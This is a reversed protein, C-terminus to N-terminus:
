ASSPMRSPTCHSSNLRTSKRDTGHRDSGFASMDSDVLNRAIAIRGALDPHDLEVGTDIIAVSVGEGRSWRQAAAAEIEAFGHQLGLYPDNYGPVTSGTGASFTVPLTPATAADREGVADPANGADDRGLSKFVQMPQALRVRRDAAMSRIVADRDAGPPLEFVLCQVGLPAIPWDRVQRLGYERGLAAATARAHSSVGYADAVDYGYPSSGASALLPGSDNAITVLILRDASPTLAGGELNPAPMLATSACGGAALLGALLLAARVRIKAAAAM